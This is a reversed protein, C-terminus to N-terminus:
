RSPRHTDTENAMCSNYVVVSRKIKSGGSQFVQLLYSNVAVNVLCGPSKKFQTWEPNRIVISSCLLLPLQGDAIWFLLWPFDLVSGNTSIVGTSSIHPLSILRRVPCRQRKMILTIHIFGTRLLMGTALFSICYQWLM